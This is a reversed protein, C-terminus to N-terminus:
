AAAPKASTAKVVVVAAITSAGPRALSRKEGIGAARRILHKMPSPLPRASNNGARFTGIEPIDREIVFRQLAM